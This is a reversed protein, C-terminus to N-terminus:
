PKDEEEVKLKVMKIPLNENEEKVNFLDQKQEVKVNRLLTEAEISKHELIL